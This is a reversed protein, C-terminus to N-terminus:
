LETCYVRFLYRVELEEVMKVVKKSYGKVLAKLELLLMESEKNQRVIICNQNKIIEEQLKIKDKLATNHNKLMEIEKGQRRIKKEAKTKESLNTTSQVQVMSGGSVSGFREESGM